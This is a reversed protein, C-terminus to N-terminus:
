HRTCLHSPSFFFISCFWNQRTMLEPSSFLPSSALSLSPVKQTMWIWDRLQRREGFQKIVPTTIDKFNPAAVPQAMHHKERDRLSLPALELWSGPCPAMFWGAPVLSVEQAAVLEELPCFLDRQAKHLWLRKESQLDNLTHNSSLFVCFYM